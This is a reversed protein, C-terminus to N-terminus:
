PTKKIKEPVGPALPDKQAQLNSLAQAASADAPNLSVVQQMAAVAQQHNGTKEFSLSLLFLANAYNNQLSVAQSLAQIATAYDGEAYLISGFNYWGLPDQQSLSVAMKADDAAAAFAHQGAEVQSRLFYAAALDPKLAIAATLYRLSSSADNQAIAVQAAGILPLPNTPNAIAAQQYASLAKAYSGQVGAGGIEAYAGALALWNQYDSSNISVANLGDAITQALTAQLTNTDQQTGSALLQQMQLVGLEVAARHAADNDPYVTLAERVLALSHSIDSTKSYALASQALLMDSLAARIAYTCASLIVFSLAVLVGVLAMRWASRIHLAVYYPERIEEGADLAIFLGVFAFLLISLALGPTYLIHFVLLLWAGFLTANAQARASTLRARRVFVITRVLLAGILALWAFIGLVGATIFSTPIVGVGASFDVSWFQTQNIGLPKFQGWAQTFTNPGSGFLLGPGNFVKQGIEFTGQWSPRVETQPIQLRAPLHTAIFGVSLACILALVGVGLSVAGRWFASSHPRREYFRASAWQYLALMGAVATLMYWLDQMGIVILLLFSLVSLFLIGARAHGRAFQPSSWLTLALSIVLVLGIGLDHWTGIVSSASGSLVGGLGLFTPFALRVIQVLVIVASGAFFTLLVTRAAAISTRTGFVLACLALLAFLLVMSIVTDQDGAGSVYSEAPARSFLASLFYCLPLLAAAFFVINRPIRLAGESLRAILWGVLAVSVLVAALIIKSQDIQAWSAPIVFFPTLGVLTILAYRAIGDALERTQMLLSLLV